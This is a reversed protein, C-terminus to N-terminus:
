RWHSLRRGSELRYFLWPGGGWYRPLGLFRSSETFPPPLYTLPDAPFFPYGAPAGLGPPLLLTSPASGSLLPGVGAPRDPPAGNGQAPVREASQAAQWRLEAGRRAYAARVEPSAGLDALRVLDKASTLYPVRWHQIYSQVVDESLHGRLMKELDVLLAPAPQNTAGASGPGPEVADARALVLFASFLQIALVILCLRSRMLLADRPEVYSAFTRTCGLSPRREHLAGNVCGLPPPRGKFV